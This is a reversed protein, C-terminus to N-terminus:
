GVSGLTSTFYVVNLLKINWVQCQALKLWILNSLVLYFLYFLINWLVNVLIQYYFSPVLHFTWPKDMFFCFFCYFSCFSCYLTSLVCHVICSYQDLLLPYFYHLFYNTNYYQAFNYYTTCLYLLSNMNWDNRHDTEYNYIQQRLWKITIDESYKCDKTKKFWLQKM